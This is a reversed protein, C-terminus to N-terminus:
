RVTVNGYGFDTELEREREGIKENWVRELKPLNGELMQWDERAKLICGRTRAVTELDLSDKHLSMLAMGWDLTEAVGPVKHFPLERLETMVLAIQLALRDAIGPLRAHLIQVEQEFSPYSQWLYLCRRRLADSLERSRNSTLIVYPRHTAKITGLEPITVQFEALLELLFAEFAEDARDVEDILLVCPKDQTIAELLPRKLLFAESFIHAERESLSSSENETMRIRLMQRPYNWEYLASSADLGEYCQLRILRTGLVDALVKASETKGVGAPGEILLPKQLAMVLQLATSFENSTIFGRSLFGQELAAIETM